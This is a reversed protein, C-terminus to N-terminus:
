CKSSGEALVFTTGNCSCVYARELKILREALDYLTHFHDSSYTIKYPSFGLWRVMEEIALFYKEEEKEPNTDDYRLYSLCPILRPGHSEGLEQPATGSEAM